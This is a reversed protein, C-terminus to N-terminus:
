HLYYVPRWQWSLMRGGIASALDELRLLYNIHISSHTPFDEYVGSVFTDETGIRIAQGLAPKDGFYKKALTQSLAVSKPQTLITQRDGEILKLDFMDFMTREGYGGNDETGKNEGVTFLLKSNINLFRFYYDM